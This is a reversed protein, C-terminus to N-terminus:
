GRRRERRSIITHNTNIQSSLVHGCISGAPDRRCGLMATASPASVVDSSSLGTPPAPPSPACRSTARCRRVLGVVIEVFQQLLLIVNGARTPSPVVLPRPCASARDARGGAGQWAGSASGCAWSHPRNSRM